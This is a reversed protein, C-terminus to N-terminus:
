REICRRRCVPKRRNKSPELENLAAIAKAHHADIALAQHFAWRATKPEGLRQYAAGLGFLAEPDRKKELARKFINIAEQYDGATIARFGLDNLNM